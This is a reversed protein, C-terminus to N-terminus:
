DPCTAKEKHAPFVWYFNDPVTIYNRCGAVPITKKFFVLGPQWITGFIVYDVRLRRGAMIAVTAPTRYAGWDFAMGDLQGQVYSPTAVAFVGYAVLEKLYAATLETAVRETTGTGPTLPLLACTPRPTNGAAHSPLKGLSMFVLVFCSLLLKRPVLFANM